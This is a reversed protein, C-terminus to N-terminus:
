VARERLAAREASGRLGAPRAAVRVPREVRVRAAAPGARGSATGVQDTLVGLTGPADIVERTPTVQTLAPSQQAGGTGVSGGSSVTGGSGSTGGASTGGGTGASGDLKTSVGGTPSECGWLAFTALGVLVTCRTIVHPNKKM